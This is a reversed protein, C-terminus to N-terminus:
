YLLFRQNQVGGRDFPWWQAIKKVRYNWVRAPQSGDRLTVAMDLQDDGDYDYLALDMGSSKGLDYASILRKQEGNREYYGLSPVLSGRSALAYEVEGDGDIDGARVVSQIGPFNIKQSKEIKLDGDLEDVLFGNGTNYLLVLKDKKSGEINVADVSAGQHWIDGSQERLEQGMKNFIRIRQRDPYEPVVIVEYGPDDSIDSALVEVSGHAPIGWEYLKQWKNNYIKIQATDRKNYRSTIFYQEDKYDFSRLNDVPGVGSLKEVDDGGEKKGFSSIMAEDINFVALKGKKISKQNLAYDVAKDVRLLGAGFLSAYEEEDQGPTHHVAVLLANFIEAPGWSPQISKVLAAAGSVISTSFSTGSWGGGYRNELDNNPSFRLTSSVEEGPATIDICKAGVNSFRALHHSEDMASVGMIM